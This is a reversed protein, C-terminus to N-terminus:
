GLTPLPATNFNFFSAPVLCTACADLMTGPPSPTTSPLNSPNSNQSEEDRSSTLRVPHRAPRRPDPGRIKRGLAQDPTQLQYQKSHFTHLTSFTAQRCLRLTCKGHTSVQLNLKEASATPRGRCPPHTREQAETICGLDRRRNGQSRWRRSLAM